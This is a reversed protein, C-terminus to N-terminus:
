NERVTYVTLGCDRMFNISKEPERHADNESVLAIVVTIGSAVIVKACDWCVASNVYIITDQLSYRESSLIANVEAHNAVCNSYSTGGGETARPCFDVCSTSDGEDFGYPAGNYGVGVIHKNDSSVIVAGVKRRSCKSLSSTLEAQEFWHRFWKGSLLKGGIM